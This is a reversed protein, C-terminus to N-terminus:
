RGAPMVRIVGAERAVKVPLVREITELLGALDDLSYRGGLRLDAVAPDILLRTAHYAGFRELATALPTDNLVVYGERWAVADEAAGAALAHVTLQEAAVIARRGATVGASEDPAEVALRVRVEGELVTVEMNEASAARVNFITGTARVAAAPTEVIFPRAPDRAVNFLAEGQTLRVRRLDRAFNVQLTTRANLEVRTGDSLTAAQREALQTRIEGASRGLAFFGLIGAVAALALAVITRM